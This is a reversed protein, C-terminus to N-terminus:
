QGVDRVTIIVDGSLREWLNGDGACANQSAYCIGLSVAYTGVPLDSFHDRWELVEGAKLRNNTWSSGTKGGKVLASLIGYYVDGGSNNTVKFDYWVQDGKQTTMNEVYFYNGSVGRSTYGTSDTVDGVTVWVTDSLREWVAANNECEDKDAYCIALYFPYTGASGVEIHDRWVLSDAWKISSNTWSHGHLGTSSFISLIGFKPAGGVNTVKFDFWLQQAIGIQSTEVYFYDGRLGQATYGGASTTTPATSAPAAPTPTAVVTTGAAPIILVQGSFITYSTLGNAAMLAALTVGHQRSIKYLSDGSQVRYTTQGTTAGAPASVVVPASPATGPVPIVLRQGAWILNPNSLGNAAVIAQVSVGMRNAIQSLTEGPKVVYVTDAYAPLAMALLALSIVLSYIVRKM